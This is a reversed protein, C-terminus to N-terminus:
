TMVGESKKNIDAAKNGGANCGAFVLVLCLTLLLAITKKM